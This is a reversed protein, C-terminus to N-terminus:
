IKMNESLLVVTFTFRPHPSTNWEEVIGNFQWHIISEEFIGHPRSLYRYNINKQKIEKYQKKYLGLKYLKIDFVGNGSAGASSELTLFTM